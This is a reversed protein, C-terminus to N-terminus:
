DWKQRLKVPVLEGVTASAVGIVTDAGGYYVLIEDDDDLFERDSLSVAGCTFVVNPVWSQGFVGIEYSTEPELIPNPSRYIVEEPKKLSTVFVGLRYCFSYDVGHYILLWGHRTKIPQAGAGIKVADWMMGSRTGLVIRHGERPWPTTFDDAYAVWINPNIRHYMALKGNFREPFLIADKNPFGPFVLGHRHWHEWRYNVFDEIAISAMAIQPTIGDYATYLMYIRDGIATLRPDECGMNESEDVPVFVPEPLREELSLGDRSVALGLRSIGDDGVARYLLYITGKLRIAGCNLVYKSEWRHERVPTLLPNYPSRRLKGAPPLEKEIKQEVIVRKGHEPAGLYLVALDEDERGQGMLEVIKSYVEERSGGIKEYCRFFLESSFWRREIMLSLPTPIGKGGKFSYSAWSWLSTTVFQGDPLTLGLHYGKLLKQLLEGAASVNKDSSNKFHLAIQDLREKLLQQQRNEFISHASFTSMGWHGEISNIVMSGFEKRNRGFNQWINGFEEADIISKLITTLLRIRPFEGGSGRRLNSVVVRSALYSLAPAEKITSLAPFERYDVVVGQVPSLEFHEVRLNERFWHNNRHMYKSEESWSSLALVDLPDHQNLLEDIDEYGWITILNRPPHERLVREAVEAKLSFSQTEPFLQFINRVFREMGSSTYLDGPLLLEELDEEVQLFLRRLAEGIKVSGDRTTLGLNEQVFQEFSEKYEKLLGEYIASVHEVNRQPSKILLPLVIPVGPIYEWYSIEPLFPQLAEKHHAWKELFYQKKAIFTDMQLEIRHRAHYPCLLRGVPYCVLEKCDEHVSVENLFGALRGEWLPRLSDAIDEKKLQPLFNYALLSDYVIQAWLFASFIFREEPQDALEALQLNLEEPFIRRWVAEYFRAMGRRFSSICNRQEQPFAQPNYSERAGFILPTRLAAPKKRWSQASPKRAIAQFLVHVNQNFLNNLHVPFITEPKNGLFVEAVEVGQELAQLLLWTDIGFEYAEVPWDQPDDLPRFLLHRSMALGAGLFGHLELNYLAGVLPYIFHEAISNDLLSAKFRPLVFGAQGELVPQYLLKIWDHSLGLTKETPAVFLVPELLVLDAGLVRSIEMISRVAWGKRRFKGNPFNFIVRNEEVKFNEGEKLLGNGSQDNCFCIIVAKLTPFFTNLGTQVTQLLEKKSATDFLFPIGVALDASGLESIKGMVEEMYIRYENEIGLM